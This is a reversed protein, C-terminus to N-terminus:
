ENRMVSTSSLTVSSAAGGGGLLGIVKGFLQYQYVYSVVVSDPLGPDTENHIFITAGTVNASNLRLDVATQIQATTATPVVAARAGERAANTIVQQINWARAFEFIGLLVALLIPVTIAFEVLASGRHDRRIDRFKM